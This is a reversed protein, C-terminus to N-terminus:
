NTGSCISRRCSAPKSTNRPKADFGLAV